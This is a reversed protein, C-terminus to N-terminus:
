LWTLGLALGVRLLDPHITKCTLIADFSESDSTMRQHTIANPVECFVFTVNFNVDITNKTQMWPQWLM